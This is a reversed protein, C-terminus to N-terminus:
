LVVRATQISDKASAPWILGCSHWCPPVSHNEESGCSSSASAQYGTRGSAISSQAANHIRHFIQTKSNENRQCRRSICLPRDAEKATAHWGTNTVKPSEGDITYSLHVRSRSHMQLSAELSPFRAAPLFVFHLSIVDFGILRQGRMRRSSSVFGDPCTHPRHRASLHLHLHPRMKVHRTGPLSVFLHPWLVPRKRNAEAALEIVDPRERCVRRKKTKCFVMLTTNGLPCHRFSNPFGIRCPFPPAFPFFGREHSTLCHMENM